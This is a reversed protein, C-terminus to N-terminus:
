NGFGLDPQVAAPGSRGAAAAYAKLSRRPPSFESGAAWRLVRWFEYEGAARELYSRWRAADFEAQWSEDDLPVYPRCSAAHVAASSWPSAGAREELGRRRPELEICALAPWLLPDELAHVGFDRHWLRGRDGRDERVYGHYGQRLWRVGGHLEAPGPASLVLHTRETLLSYGFLRWSFRQAAKRVLSLYVYRDRDSRFLTRYALVAQTVLQPCPLPRAQVHSRM